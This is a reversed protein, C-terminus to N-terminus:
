SGGAARGGGRTRVQSEVGLPAGPASASASLQFFRPPMRWAGALIRCSVAGVRM